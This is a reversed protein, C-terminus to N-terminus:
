SALAEFHPSKTHRLLKSKKSPVVRHTRLSSLLDSEDLFDSVLSLKPQAPNRKSGLM